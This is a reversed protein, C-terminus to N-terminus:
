LTFGVLGVTRCITNARCDGNMQREPGVNPLYWTVSFWGSHLVEDAKPHLREIHILVKQEECM